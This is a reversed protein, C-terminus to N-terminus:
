AVYGPAVYGPAVYPHGAAGTTGAVYGTAVYGAAVYASSIVGPAQPYTNAQYALSCPVVFRDTEQQPSSPSMPRTIYVSLGGSTLATSPSFLADLEESIAEGDAAGQGSPLVISVQFVGLYERSLGDIGYTATEAPLVFARLYRTAPQTFKVNQWAVPIAPTQAEAWANLASEFASRIRAQTM